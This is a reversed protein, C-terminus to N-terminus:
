LNAKISWRQRGGGKGWTSGTWVHCSYRIAFPSSYVKEFQALLLICCLLHLVAFMVGLLRPGVNLLLVLTQQRWKGNGKPHIKSIIKSKKNPQFNPATQDPGGLNDRTTNLCSNWWIDMEFNWKGTQTLYHEILFQRPKQKPNRNPNLTLRQKINVEWTTELLLWVPFRGFMWKLTGAGLDHWTINLSSNGNINTQIDKQIWRQASNSKSRGLALGTVLLGGM